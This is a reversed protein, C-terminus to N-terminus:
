EPERYCHENMKMAAYYGMARIHLLQNIWEVSSPCTPPKWNPAIVFFAAIFM